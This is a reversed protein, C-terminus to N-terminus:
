DVITTTVSEIKQNFNFPAQYAKSVAGGEDEGVAVGDDFSFMRAITNPVLKKAVLTGNLYLYANGGKGQGSDNGKGGVGNEDYRFKVTIVNDGKNLPTKSTAATNEYALWNYEFTPIGNKVFLTWGAFNGGQAIM